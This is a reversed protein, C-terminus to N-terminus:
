GGPPYTVIFRVLKNPYEQSHAVGCWAAWMLVGAGCWRGAAKM